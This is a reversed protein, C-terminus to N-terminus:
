NFLQLYKEFQHKKDNYKNWEKCGDVSSFAQKQYIHKVILNALAMDDELIVSTFDPKFYHNDYTIDIWHEHNGSLLEQPVAQKSGIFSCELAVVESLVIPFGEYISPLVFLDVRKIFKFPNSNFPLIYVLDDLDLLTSLEELKEKMIGEGLIILKMKKEPYMKRIYCLAKLLKWQAKQESLRGINLIYKYDTDFSFERIEEKAYTLISLKDACNTVVKIIKNKIKFNEVLDNKVEESVSLIVNHSLNYCFSIIKYALFRIYIPLKRYQISLVNHVSLCRPYKLPLLATLMNSRDLFSYIYDPKFRCVFRRLKMYIVIQQIAKIFFNSSNTNYASIYESSMSYLAFVEVEYGKLYLYQKFDLLIKEAGGTGIQDIVLLIRSM